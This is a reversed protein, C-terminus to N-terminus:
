FQIEGACLFFLMMNRPLFVHTLLGTRDGLQLTAERLDNLGREDGPEKDTSHPHGDRGWLAASLLVSPLM